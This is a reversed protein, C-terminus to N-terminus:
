SLADWQLVEDAPIYTKTRRGVVQDFYKPAIGTGPRKCALMDSTILTGAPVDVSTVVSRRMYHMAPIESEIPRKGSQGLAAWAARTEDVLTKLEQPDVGFKHDPSDPLNKDLTFHKEIMQCGLATAAIPATMGFTHDSLGIPYDPFATQMTVMMRLNSDGM